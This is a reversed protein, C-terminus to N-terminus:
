DEYNGGEEELEEFKKLANEYLKISWAWYGFAEDHPFIERASIEGVVEGDVVIKKTPKVKILFVEFYTVGKCVRQEYICTRKGRLVQTYNFGNKTLKLPLTRVKRKDLKFLLICTM